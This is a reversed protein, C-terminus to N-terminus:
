GICAYVGLRSPSGLVGAEKFLLYFGQIVQPFYVCKVNVERCIDQPSLNLHTSRGPKFFLTTAETDCLRRKDIKSLISDSQFSSADQLLPHTNLGDQVSDAFAFIPMTLHWGHVWRCGGLPSCLHGTFLYWTCIPRRCCRHIRDTPWMCGCGNCFTVM